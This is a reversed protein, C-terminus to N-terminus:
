GRKVAHRRVPRAKEKRARRGRSRLNDRKERALVARYRALADPDIAGLGGHGSCMSLGGGKALDAGPWGSHCSALIGTTKASLKKKQQM